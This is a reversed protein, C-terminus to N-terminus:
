VDDQVDACMVAGPFVDCSECGTTVDRVGVALLWCVV